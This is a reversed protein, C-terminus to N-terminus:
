FYEDYIHSYENEYLWEAFRARPFKAVQWGRTVKLIEQRVEQSLARLKQLGVRVRTGAAKNGQEYFKEFDDQLLQLQELLENYRNM